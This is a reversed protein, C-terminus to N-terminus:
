HLGAPPDTQWSPLTITVLTGCNVTSSISLRGGLLQVIQTALRMGVGLGRYQRRDSADGQSLGKLAQRLQVPDMGIGTDRVHIEIASEHTNLGLSIRLEGTETFKVANDILAGLVHQLKEPDSHLFIGDTSCETEITIGKQRATEQFKAITGQILGYVDFTQLTLVFEGADITNLLMVSEVLNLLEVANSHIRQLATEQESNMQSRLEDSLIASYGIIASLPTRLEHSLNSLFDEKSRRGHLRTRRRTVARQVLEAIQPVDFPKSVYDFAGYRLGHLASDLSSYGTVIIVEIDPDFQKIQRMVEIGSIQPMRLDLTVVDIPTQRIIDLAQEGGSATYVNYSPKFIMRLSEAPGREDDVILLSAKGHDMGAESEERFRLLVEFAM